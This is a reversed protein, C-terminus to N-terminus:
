KTYTQRPKANVFIVITLQVYDVSINSHESSTYFNFNCYDPITIFFSFSLRQVPAFVQSTGSNAYYFEFNVSTSPLIMAIALSGTYKTYCDFPYEVSRTAVFLSIFEGFIRM